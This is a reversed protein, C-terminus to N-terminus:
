FDFAIKDFPRVNTKLKNGSSADLIPLSVVPDFTLFLSSAAGMSSTPLGSFTRPTDVVPGPDMGPPSKGRHPQLAGAPREPVRESLLRGGCLSEEAHSSFCLLCWYSGVIEEVLCHMWWDDWFIFPMKNALWLM